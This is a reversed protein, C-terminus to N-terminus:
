LEKMRFRRSLEYNGRELVAVVEFGRDEWVVQDTKLVVTEAAIWVTYLDEDALRVRSAAREDTEGGLPLGVRAPMPMGAVPNWVERYGGGGDYEKEVRYLTIADPFTTEVTARMAEIQSSSLATM